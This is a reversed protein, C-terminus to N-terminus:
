EYQLAELVNLRSARRAPLLSALNGASIALVVFGVVSLPVTFSVGYKGLATAAAAALGIGVPIGLAAGILATVISEHRIMRRVQRRTMGVARLMGLERTREFVSLALTNVMGFLSVVVSLALLVYFLNLVQTFGHARTKAWDDRTAVKTDPFGALAHKLQATVAASDGGRTDVLVLGNRPRPFSRDFTANTVVVGGLVSDLKPTEFIAKVRLSQTHGNPTTLTFREGVSLDNDKAFSQKILAEGNGLTQAERVSGQKWEFGFASGITAPDVGNVSANAGAARGRDFRIPSVSEVGPVRRLAADTGSSFATWGNQSTVVYKSQVQDKLSNVDSGSLGKGFCTVFTVLALGIMLASATSATRSPNRQANEVALRGATGARLSPRGVLAVVPRVLRSAVLAIGLFLLLVGFGLGGFRPAAEIGHAFFGVGLLAIAAATFIV